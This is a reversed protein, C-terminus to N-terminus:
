RAVTFPASVVRAREGPGAGDRSMDVALRYRGPELARPLNTSAQVTAGPAILWAEMTCIRGAEDIPMWAGNVEREVIRFCPNFAYSGDARSVFTLAVRDGAGYTDRDRRLELPVSSPQPAPAQIGGPTAPATTV